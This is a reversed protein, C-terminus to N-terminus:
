VSIDFGSDVCIHLLLIEINGQRCCIGSLRITALKCFTLQAL